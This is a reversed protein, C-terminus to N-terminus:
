EHATEVDGSPHVASRREDAHQQSGTVIGKRRPFEDVPELPAATLGARALARELLALYPRGHSGLVAPSGPAVQEVVRLPEVLLAPYPLEPAGACRAAGAEWPGSVQRPLTVNECRDARDRPCGNADVGALLERPCEQGEEAIRVRFHNM